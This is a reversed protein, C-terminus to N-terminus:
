LMNRKSMYNRGGDESSHFYEVHLRKGVIEKVTAVRLQSIQNKDVVELTQGV